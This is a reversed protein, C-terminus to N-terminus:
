KKVNCAFLCFCVFIGGSTVENRDVEWGKWRGKRGWPKGDSVECIRSEVTNGRLGQM